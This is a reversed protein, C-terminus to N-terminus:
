RGNGSSAGYALIRLSAPGDTKGLGIIKLRKDDLKFHNLLYDRVVYARAQSLQLDKDAEGVPGASAEIVALSPNRTQLFAGAEDLSKQDKVKAADKDFM